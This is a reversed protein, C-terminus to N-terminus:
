MFFYNVLLIYHFFVSIFIQYVFSYYFYSFSFLFFVFLSFFIISGFIHYFLDLEAFILFLIESFIFCISSTPLKPIKKKKNGNMLTFFIRNTRNNNERKILFNNGLTNKNKRTVSCEFVEM